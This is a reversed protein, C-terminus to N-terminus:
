IEHPRAFYAIILGTMIGGILGTIMNDIVAGIILGIGIGVPLWQLAFIRTLSNQYGAAVLFIGAILVGSMGIIEGMHRFEDAVTMFGIVAIGIIIFGAIRFIKGKSM